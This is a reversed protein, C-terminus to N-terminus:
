GVDFGSHYSHGGLVKIVIRHNVGQFAIPPCDGIIRESQFDALPIKLNIESCFSHGYPCLLASLLNGDLDLRKEAWRGDGVELLCEALERHVTKDQRFL